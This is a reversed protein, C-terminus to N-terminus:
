WRRGYRRMGPCVYFYVWRLCVDTHWCCGDLLQEKTGGCNQLHIAGKSYKVWNLSHLVICGSTFPLATWRAYILPPSPSPLNPSLPLAPQPSNCGCKVSSSSSPPASYERWSCGVPVPQSVHEFLGGGRLTHFHPQMNIDATSNPSHYM